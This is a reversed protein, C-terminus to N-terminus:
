GSGLEALRQEAKAAQASDPYDRIVEEYTKRGQELSGAQEFCQGARWLAEPSLEEHLFLIAVRMYSKAAAVFDSQQEYLEALHFRAQAATEGVNSNAADEYLAFAKELDGKIEYMRAMRYKAEMGAATQPALDMVGQYGAIAEDTKGAKEYSEAVKLHVREPNPYNPDATLLSNFALVAEDWRGQDFMYQGVWAYTQENLKIAPHERMLRGFLGAAADLDNLEYHSLALGKLALGAIREKPQLDLAQQYEAVAAVYDKQELAHYEGIRYRAEAAHASQPYKELLLRYTAVSEEYQKLNHYTVAMRHLIEEELEPSPTNALIQKYQEVAENFDESLVQTDSLRLMAEETLPNDPYQKAFTAFVKSAEEVRGMQALCEGAKYLADAGFEGSSYKEAVLRFEEYADEHNGEEVLITGLLFSADGLLANDKNETLFKTIAEKAEEQKGALYLAWASKYRAHVAFPSAPYSDILQKYKVLAQEYQKQSQLANGLLYLVGVVRDSQQFDAIFSTAAAAAEAYHGANYLAWAHGYAAREDYTPGAGAAKLKEFATGAMDFQGLKDYMEGAQFLSEFKLSDDPADSAVKFFENAAQEYQGLQMYTYALLYRTYPILNGGPYADILARFAARAKEYDKREYRVKGAYYLAGPRVSEDVGEASLTEFLALAEEGRELRYLIEGQRLQARQKNLADAQLAATQAFPELAAEFDGLQYLSEGLRYFADSIQSGQPYKEVYARYEDAAERYLGRSFLANAFDIDQQEQSDQALAPTLVVAAACLIAVVKHLM